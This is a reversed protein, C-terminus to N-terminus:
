RNETILLPFYLRVKVGQSLPILELGADKKFLLSLREQVNKLGIGPRRRQQNQFQDDQNLGAGNDEVEIFLYNNFTYIRIMVKLNEGSSFGHYLSNELLPQLCLKPVLVHNLSDDYDYNIEFKTQYRFRQIFEYSKILDMEEDLSVLEKESELSAELLKGLSICIQTISENNERIAIWKVTNLTNHLFHPNMQAQLMQYKVAEKQREEVKLQQVLENLDRMMGNFNQALVLMEGRYHEEPFYTNLKEEVANTMKIQLDKLPRTYKTSIVLTVVIFSTVLFIFTYIFRKNMEDVEEYLVDLSVSNVMYWDLENMHEFNILATKDQNVFYNNEGKGNVVMKKIDNSLEANQNSQVIIEGSGSMIFYDQHVPLMKTALTFWESFDLSIRAMGFPDYHDEKLVAYLSLLAPSRSLDSHVYNEDNLVWFYDITGEALEQYWEEKVMDDYILKKRPRFSTYINGEFDLLTYYVSPNSLFFSNSISLFKNDVEKYRTLLNYEEPNKFYSAIKSDQEILIVTKFAVGMLDELTRNISGLQDNVQESIKEQMIEEIKHFHYLSVVSFPVIIFVLFSLILRNKLTSPTWKLIFKSM